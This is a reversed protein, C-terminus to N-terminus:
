PVVVFRSRAKYQKTRSQGQRAAKLAAFRDAKPAGAARRAREM